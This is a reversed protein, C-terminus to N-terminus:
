IRYGYRAETPDVSTAETHRVSARVVVGLALRIFNKLTGDCPLATSGRAACCISMCNPRNFDDQGV